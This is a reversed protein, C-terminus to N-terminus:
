AINHPQSTRNWVMLVQVVVLRKLDYIPKRAHPVHRFLAHKRADQGEVLLQIGVDKVERRRAPGEWFIATPRRRRSFRSYQLRQFLVRTERLLESM